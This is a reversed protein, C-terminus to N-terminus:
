FQYGSVRGGIIKFHFCVLEKWLFLNIKVESCNKMTVSISDFYEDIVRKGGGIVGPFLLLEMFQNLYILLLPLLLLLKM